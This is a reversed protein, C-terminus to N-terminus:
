ILVVDDYMEIIEGNKQPMVINSDPIGMDLGLQRHAFREKAPMYYPLFFKPKVLALM